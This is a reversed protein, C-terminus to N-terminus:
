TKQKSYHVQFYNPEFGKTQEVYTDHKSQSSMDNGDHRTSINVKQQCIKMKVYTDYKAQQELSSSM